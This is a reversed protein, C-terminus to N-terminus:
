NERIGPIVRWKAASSEHWSLKLTIFPDSYFPYHPFHLTKLSRQLKIDSSADDKSSGTAILALDASNEKGLISSLLVTWGLGLSISKILLQWQQHHAHYHSLLIFSGM